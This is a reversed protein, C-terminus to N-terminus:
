QKPIAKMIRTDVDDENRHTRRKKKLTKQIKTGGTDCELILATINDYGGAERALLVMERCIDDLPAPRSLVIKLIEDPVMDNLGDTCLLIKDDPMMDLYLIDVYMGEPMGIDCLLEYGAPHGVAEDPTVVGEDLLVQLMNHDKTLRSLKGERLLYARSDGAHIIMAQNNRVLAMVLTAGMGACDPDTKSRECVRNNIEDVARYVAERVEDAMIDPIKAPLEKKLIEPLQNAVMESAVEGALAGGMGDSVIYCGFDSDVSFSDENNSRVCGIDTRGANMLKFKKETKNKQQKMLTKGFKQVREPKVSLLADMLLEFKFESRASCLEKVYEFFYDLAQPIFEFYSEKKKEIGLFAYAGLAQM